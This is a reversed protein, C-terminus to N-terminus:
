FAWLFHHRLEWVIVVICIVWVAVIPFTVNWFYRRRERRAAEAEFKARLEATLAQLRQESASEPCRFERVKRTDANM